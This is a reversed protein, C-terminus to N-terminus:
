GLVLEITHAENVSRGPKISQSKVKGSGRVKVRVNRNELLYLADRLGMGVVNPIVKDQNRINRTLLSLTDNEIRSVAWRTKSADKYPMNLGEILTEFDSKFGVQLNPMKDGRYVRSSDNIANHVDIIKSYCKDAIEKFVPAAVRGGYFGIRPNTIVVICSYVPKDAPFYGAFSSRYQKTEGRDRYARYNIIATGTKGAISYHEPKINKATGNKGAVVSELLQKVYGVTKESVLNRSIIEPRFRQETKGFSRIEKVIHPKMMQGNNAITNYLNLTQLPTLYSEYGIAMWPITIGSWDKYDPDKIFSSGEGSFGLKSSEFQLSRLYDIYKKQSAKDKNYYKNALRAVGVNSSIEFAKSVTTNTLGHYSADEMTEDYFEIRGKNLNVIDTPKVHGHEFLAMMTALKFTSGPEAAEAIAYNKTEWYSSRNKSFGINAIAKIEGTAVEMVIACGHDAQNTKLTRLLAEETIDQINVDLTTVIDKGSKPEIESMDTLPVWINSGICKMLKKTEEGSLIHDFAEELGVRMTDIVPAGSVDRITDGSQSIKVYSRIYGVTRHALMKFPYQRKSMKDIILGSKYQGGKNFLPFKKIEELELYGVNKRIPFYRHGRNRADTLRARYAGITYENDVYRALCSALTDVYRMFTDKPVVKTDFHLQFYPLSTALLSGSEALINGRPAEVPRLAVYISKAKERLAEGDMYQVKGIQLLIVVAAIITMLMVVYIRWLIANRVDVPPKAAKPNQDKGSM